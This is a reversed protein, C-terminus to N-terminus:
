LLVSEPHYISRDIADLSANFSCHIFMKHMGRVAYPLRRVTCCMFDDDDQAPAQSSLHYSSTGRFKRVVSHIPIIIEGYVGYTGVHWNLCGRSVM